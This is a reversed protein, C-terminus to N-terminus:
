PIYCCKRCTLRQRLGKWTNVWNMGMHFRSIRAYEAWKPLSFAQRLDRSWYALLAPVSAGSVVQSVSLQVTESIFIFVTLAPSPSTTGWWRVHDVSTRAFWWCLQTPKLCRVWKAWNNESHNAAQRPFGLNIYFSRVASTQSRFSLMLSMKDSLPYNWMTVPGASCHLWRQRWVTPSSFVPVGKTRSRLGEHAWVACLCHNNGDHSVQSIMFLAFQIKFCWQWFRITSRM